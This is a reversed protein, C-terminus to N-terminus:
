AAPAATTPYNLPLASGIPVFDPPLFQPAVLQPAICALAAANPLGLKRMAKGRHLKITVLALGLEAAIQKNLLGALTLRLIERERPTLRSIQQSAATQSHRSAAVARAKILAKRVAALLSQSCFPKSFYNEAGAQIAAVAEPISQGSHLFIVPLGGAHTQIAPLRAVSVCDGLLLVTASDPAPESPLQDIGSYRHVSIGAKSFLEQLTAFTELDTEAVIIHDVQTRV